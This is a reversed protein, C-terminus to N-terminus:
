KKRGFNFCRTSEGRKENIRIVVKKDASIERYREHLSLKHRKRKKPAGIRTQVLNLIFGLFISKDIDPVKIRSSDEGPIALSTKTFISIRGSLQITHVPRFPQYLLSSNAHFYLVLRSHEM